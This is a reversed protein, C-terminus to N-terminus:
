VHKKRRKTISKRYPINLVERISACMGKNAPTLCDKCEKWCSDLVLLLLPVIILILLLFFLCLVSISDLLATEINLISDIANSLPDLLKCSVFLVLSIIIVLILKYYIRIFGTRSTEHKVREWDHKLLYSIAKSLRNLNVTSISGDNEEKILRLLEIDEIDYPNLRVQFFTKAEAVTKFGDWNDNKGIRRLEVAAVRIEERWKQREKTIYKLKNSKDQNLKSVFSSILTAIVSSGLLGLILEM